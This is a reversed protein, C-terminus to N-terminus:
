FFVCTAATPSPRKVWTLPKELLGGVRPLTYRTAPLINSKKADM